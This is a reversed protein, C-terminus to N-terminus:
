AAPAPNPDPFSLHVSPPHDHVRVHRRRVRRSRPAQYSVAALRAANRDRAIAILFDPHYM